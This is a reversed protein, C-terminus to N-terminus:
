CGVAPTGDWHNMQSSTVGNAPNMNVNGRFTTPTTCGPPSGGIPGSSGNIVPGVSTPDMYNGIIESAAAPGTGMTMFVTSQPNFHGAFSATCTTVPATWNGASPNTVTMNVHATLANQSHNVTYTGVGGTGSVFSSITTGATIANSADLTAGPAVFTGSTSITWTGTTGIAGSIITVGGPLSGGTIQTGPGLTIPTTNATVVLINGAGGSGNSVGATIPDTNATLPYGIAAQVAGPVTITLVNGAIGSPSGGGSGDDIFGTIKYALVGDQLDVGYFSGVGGSFGGGPGTSVAGGGAGTPALSVFGLSGCTFQPGTGTISGTTFSQVYATGGPTSCAPDGAICITFTPDFTMGAPQPMIVVNNDATVQNYLFPSSLGVTVTLEGEGNVQSGRVFLNDSVNLSGTGSSTAQNIIFEAHAGAGRLSWGLAANGRFDM